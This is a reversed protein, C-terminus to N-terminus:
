MAGIFAAMGDFSAPKLDKRPRRSKQDKIKNGSAKATVTFIDSFYNNTTELKLTAARVLDQKTLRFTATLM